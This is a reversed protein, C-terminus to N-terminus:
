WSGQKRLRCQQLQHLISQPPRPLILQVQERVGQLRVLELERVLEVQREEQPLLVREERAQVLARGRVEQVVLLPALQQSEPGLVVQAQRALHDSARM